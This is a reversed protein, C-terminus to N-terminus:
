LIYHEVCILILIPRIISLKFLLLGLGYSIRACISFLKLIKVVSSLKRIFLYIVSTVNGLMRLLALITGINLDPALVSM